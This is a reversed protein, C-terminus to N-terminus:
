LTSINFHHTCAYVNGGKPLNIIIQLITQSPPERCFTPIPKKALPHEVIHVNLPSRIATIDVANNRSVKRTGKAAVPILEYPVLEYPTFEVPKFSRKTRPQTGKLGILIDTDWLKLYAARREGIKTCQRSQRSQGYLFGEVNCIKTLSFLKWIYTRHEHQNSTERIKAARTKAARTRAAHEGERGNHFGFPFKKQWDGFYKSLAYDALRNKHWRRIAAEGIIRRVREIREPCQMVWAKIRLRLNDQAKARLEKSHRVVMRLYLHVSSRGAVGAEIVALLTSILASLVGLDWLGPPSLERIDVLNLKM